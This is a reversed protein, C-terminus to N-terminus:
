RLTTLTIFSDPPVTLEFIGNTVTAPPLPELQRDRTTVYAHLAATAASPTGRVRLESAHPNHAVISLDTGNSFAVLKLAPDSATVGIRWWGAPVFKFVQATTAYRPKPTYAGNDLALLGWRSVATCGCHEHVNDFADWALVASAGGNLLGILDDAMASAFRWEDAVQRGNDLWGDTGNQSWETMWLARDPYTEALRGTSGAYDHAAFVRVHQMANPRALLAEIYASARDVRSTEPGVIAVDSYGLDALRTVLKDVIRAYQEPPVQPGEPTGLDTENLPSLMDVHVHKVRRGYDVVSAIMEVFQDEREPEIRTGGMWAPVPGSASVITQVGKTDLYALTRWLAQFDPSEYISAYSDPTLQAPSELWDSRGDVDVRWISAHLDDTLQDLAPALDTSTWNKPNANVGFGDIRQYQTAPDIALTVTPTQTMLRFCGFAVAAGIVLAVTAGRSNIRRAFTARM